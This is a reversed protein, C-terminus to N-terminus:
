PWPIILSTSEKYQMYKKDQGFKKEYKKELTPIGTVFILMLIIFLPSIVSLYEWKNLYPVVTIYIGCWFLIEGFYNPHRSYKWLGFDIWKDKNESKSKFTFKQFDAISEFVLGFIALILGIVSFIDSDINKSLFIISPVLLISITLFQLIWFFLFKLFNERIGDFRNDKGTKIIRYFLYGSLRIGWISIMLTLLISLWSFHGFYIQSFITSIVFSLGYSLDTVRDTKKIAAYIFFSLQIAFIFLVSWFM